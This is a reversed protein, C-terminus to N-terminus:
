SLENLQKHLNIFYPVAHLLRNGYWSFLEGDVLLIVARPCIKQLEAIHKEKFPFPESSLFIIAPAAQHLAEKTVVPYRTKNQFVNNFGAKNLLHDIFTDAAVAMYPNQWILYAVQRLPNHAIEQELNSFANKIKLNLATAKAETQTIIGLQQIMDHADDMTKIDSIWVPYQKKLARIQGQENEEKNGIILDPKLSEIKRFNFKKTGGIRPKTRFQNEPHVCFKTIGVVQEDLGLYFLLETQSPVLSIIRQPPYAVTMTYDMQDIFSRRM